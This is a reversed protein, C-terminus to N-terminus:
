GSTLVYRKVGNKDLDVLCGLLVGQEYMSGPNMCITKGIRKVGKSEHIHGFLGLPPQYKKVVEMVSHSGVPVLSRGAFKPRLDRDLEPAEDLSSGFPPVHFNFVTRDMGPALAVAEELKVLLDEESCERFTDWPTPNSWGTSVMTWDKDLEIAKGECLHVHSARDIVEDIEFMDDNGPCVYCPIGWQSLREDAYRMWREATELVHGTFTREVLEKDQKLAEVMDGDVRLPYYGRDSIMREVGPLDKETATLEQELFSVKFINGEQMIPVLAKGTMDGGLVLVDAEYFKGANIMKRWCVESGHVDTAFFIRTM